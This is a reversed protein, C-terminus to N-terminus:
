AGIGREVVRVVFRVLYSDDGSFDDSLTREIRHFRLSVWLGTEFTGM